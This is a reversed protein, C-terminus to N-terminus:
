DVIDDGFLVVRGGLVFKVLGSERGVDRGGAGGESVM